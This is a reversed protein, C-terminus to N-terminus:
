AAQERRTQRAAVLDLAAQLRPWISESEVWQSMRERSAAALSEYATPDRRALDYSTRLQEIVSPWEIRNWTTKFRIRKDQPWFAREAASAIIFGMDPTFYDGIASHCPTVGPRGAALYNLLPLCCGEARTTTLYYTSARALASMQDASLYDTIFVVKCRHSLGATRYYNLTGDIWLSDAAVLKVVLTADECDRLATLFGSILDERNKRGDQPSFISTYVIGSLELEDRRCRRLYDQWTDPGVPRVRNRMLRHVLPPILPKIAHRYVMRANGILSRRLSPRPPRHERFEGADPGDWLQHPPVDPDPFVYAPCSIRTTTQASWRPVRFYEPPTPVPVVRIPVRIGARQLAEATFSGCVLILDCRNATAVWNNQPNGDFAEAPVDPFEWFPYVVNPASPTLYVDQFPLVSLQIPELGRRRAERVASEIRGADRPVPIVEGWRSLLPALLRAVIDYSYGPVGLRNGRATETTYSTLIVARRPNSLGM